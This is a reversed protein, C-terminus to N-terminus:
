FALSVFWLLFHTQQLSVTKVKDPEICVGQHPHTHTKYVRGLPIVPVHQRQKIQRYYADTFNGAKIRRKEKWLQCEAVDKSSCTM